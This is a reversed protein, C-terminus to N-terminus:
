KLQSERGAKLSIWWVSLADLAEGITAYDRVYNANFPTVVVSEDTKWILFSPTKTGPETVGLLEPTDHANLAIEIRPWDPESREVWDAIDRHDSITFAQGKAFHRM